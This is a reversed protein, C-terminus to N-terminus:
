SSPLIVLDEALMESRDDKLRWARVDVVRAPTGDPTAGQVAAIVYSTAPLAQDRDTDSYMAPHDPHSHYYGLVDLGDAQLSQETRHLLLGDVRYRRATDEASTNELPVARTVTGIARDGALIGVVEHPFGSVVHDHLRDLARTTLTLTRGAAHVVRQTHSSM